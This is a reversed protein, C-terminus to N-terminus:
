LALVAALVTCFLGVVFFVQQVGLSIDAALHHLKLPAADQSFDFAKALRDDM